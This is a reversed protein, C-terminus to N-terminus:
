LFLLVNIRAGVSEKFNNKNCSVSSSTSGYVSFVAQARRCNAMQYWYTTGDQSGNEMCGAEESDGVYGWACGELQISAATSESMWDRAMSNGFISTDTEDSGGWSAMVAQVGILVLLALRFQGRESFTFRAHNWRTGYSHRNSSM